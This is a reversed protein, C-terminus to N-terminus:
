LLKLEKLDAGYKNTYDCLIDNIQEDIKDADKIAESYTSTTGDVHTIEVKIKTKLPTVKITVSGDPYKITVKKGKATKELNVKIMKRILPSGTKTEVIPAITEEVPTTTEEPKTGESAPETASESAEVTEPVTEDEPIIFIINEPAVSVETEPTTDTTKEEAESMDFSIQNDKTYTYDESTATTEETKEEVPTTTEEPEVEVAPATEESKVEPTTEGEIIMNWGPYLTNLPVEITKPKIEEVTTTTEAKVEEIVPAVDPTIEGEPVVPVPIEATEPEGKELTPVLIIEEAPDFDQFPMNPTTAEATPKSSNPDFVEEIIGNANVRRRPAVDPTLTLEPAVDNNDEEVTYVYTPIITEGNMIRIAEKRKDTGSYKRYKVDNAQADAIAKSITAIIDMSEVTKGSELYQKRENEVIENLGEEVSRLAKVIYKQSTLKVLKNDDQKVYKAPNNKVNILDYVAHEVHHLSNRNIINLWLRAAARFPATIVKGERLSTIKQNTKLIKDNLKGLKETLTEAVKEYIYAYGKGRLEERQETTGKALLKNYEKTYKKIYKNVNGVTLNYALNTITKKAIFYIPFSILGIGLSTSAIQLLNLMPISTVVMITGSGAILNATQVIGYTIGATSAIIGGPVVYDKIFKDRTVHMKRTRIDKFPNTPTNTEEEVTTNKIEENNISEELKM